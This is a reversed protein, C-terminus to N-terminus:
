STVKGKSIPRGTEPATTEPDLSRTTACGSRVPAAQITPGWEEATRTEGRVLFWVGRGAGPASSDTVSSTTLNDSLCGRTATTFNGGSSRLTALDGMVVDYGTAGAQVGWSLEADAGSKDVALGPSGSPAAPAPDCSWGTTVVFPNAGSSAFRIWGVNEGWAEGSLEGRRSM